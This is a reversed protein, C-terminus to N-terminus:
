PSFSEKRVSTGIPRFSDMFDLYEDGDADRDKSVKGEEGDHSIRGGGPM